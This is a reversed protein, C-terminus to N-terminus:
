LVVNGEVPLANVRETLQQFFQVAPKGQPKLKRLAHLVARWLEEETRGNLAALRRRAVEQRKEKQM